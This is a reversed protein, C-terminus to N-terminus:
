IGNLAKLHKSRKTKEQLNTENARKFIPTLDTKQLELNDKM